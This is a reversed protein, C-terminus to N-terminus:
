DTNLNLHLLIIRTRQGSCDLGLRALLLELLDLSLLSLFSFTNQGYVTKNDKKKTKIRMKKMRM